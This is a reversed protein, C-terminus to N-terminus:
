YGLQSPKSLSFNNCRRWSRLQGSITIFMVKYVKFVFRKMNEFSDLIKESLDYTSIAQFPKKSPVPYKLKYAYTLKKRAEDLLGAAITWLELSRIQELCPHGRRMYNTRWIYTYPHLLVHLTPHGESDRYLMKINEFLSNSIVTVRKGGQSVYQLCARNTELTIRKEFIGSLDPDQVVTIDVAVNNRQVDLVDGAM